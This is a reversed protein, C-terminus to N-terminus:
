RQWSWTPPAPAPSAPHPCAKHPHKPLPHCSQANTPRYSTSGHACASHQRRAVAPPPAFSCAPGDEGRPQSCHSNDHAPPPPPEPESTPILSPGSLARPSSQDDNFSSVDPHSTTEFQRGPSPSRRLPRAPPRIPSSAAACPSLCGPPATAPPNSAATSSPCHGALPLRRPLASPRRVRASEGEGPHCQAWCWCPACEACPARSTPM